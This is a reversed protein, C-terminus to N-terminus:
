WDLGEPARAGAVGKGGGIELEQGLMSQLYQLVVKARTTNDPAEIWEAYEPDLPKALNDNSEAEVRVGLILKGANESRKYRVHVRERIGNGKFPHLDRDWGSVVSHEVPDFGQQVIPFGNKEMALRTIEWLRMTSCMPIEQPVWQAPQPVHCAAATLAACAALRILLRKM